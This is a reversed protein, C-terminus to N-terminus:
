RAIHPLTARLVQAQASLDKGTTIDKLLTNWSLNRPNINWFTLGEIDPIPRIIKRKIGEVWLIEGWEYLFPLFKANRSLNKVFWPSPTDETGGIVIEGQDELKALSQRHAIVMVTMQEAKLTHQIKFYTSKFPLIWIQKSWGGDMLWIDTPVAKQGMRGRMLHAWYARVLQESGHLELWLLEKGNLLAWSPCAVSGRVRDASDKLIAIM